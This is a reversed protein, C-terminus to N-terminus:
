RSWSSVFFVFFVFFCSSSVIQTRQIVFANEKTREEEHEKTNKTNEHDRCRDIM